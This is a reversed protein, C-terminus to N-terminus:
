LSFGISSSQFYQFDLLLLLEATFFSSIEPFFVSVFRLMPIIAQRFCVVSQLASCYHLFRYISLNLSTKHLFSFLQYRAHSITFQALEPLM